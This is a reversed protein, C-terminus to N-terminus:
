TMVDDDVPTHYHGVFAHLLGADVIQQRRFPAYRQKERHQIGSSGMESGHFLALHVGDRDLRFDDLFGTNRRPSRFACGWLTLGDVLTEPALVDTDFVHVNLPL